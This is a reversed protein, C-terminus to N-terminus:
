SSKCHKHWWMLHPCLGTIGVASMLAKPAVISVALLGGVWESSNGFLIINITVNWTFSCGDCLCSRYLVTVLVEEQGFCKLHRFNVLILLSAMKDLSTEYVRIWEFPAQVSDNLQLFYDIWIILFLDSSYIWAGKIQSIRLVLCM